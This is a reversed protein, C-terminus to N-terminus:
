VNYENLTNKANEFVRIMNYDNKCVNNQNTFLLTLFRVRKESEEKSYLSYVYVTVKDTFNFKDLLMNGFIRGLWPYKIIHEETIISPKGYELEQVFFALSTPDIGNDVNGITYKTTYIPNFDQQKVVLTAMKAFNLVNRLSIKEQESTTSKQMIGEVNGSDQSTLLQHNSVLALWTGDKDDSSFYSLYVGYDCNNEILSKLRLHLENISITFRVAYDKSQSSIAFQMKLVQNKLKFFQIQSYGFILSCILIIIAALGKQVLGQLLKEFSLFSKIKNLM